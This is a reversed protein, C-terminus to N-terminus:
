VYYPTSSDKGENYTTNPKTNLDSNSGVNYYDDPSTGLNENEISVTDLPTEALQASSIASSVNQINQNVTTLNQELKTPDTYGVSDLYSYLTDVTDQDGEVQAAAIQPIIEDRIATNSAIQDSISNAILEQEQKLTSLSASDSPLSNLPIPKSVVNNYFNKVSDGVFSVGEGIAKGVNGALKGLTGGLESLGTGGAGARQANNGGQTNKPSAKTPYEGPLSSLSIGAPSSGGLVSPLKGTRAVDNLIGLGESLISAKSINKANNILNTAGRATKLLGLPSTDGAGGLVEGLGPIVGGPGFLSNNGSGFVSLPGPVTDYHIQAFGGPEGIKIQGTAYIVTEYVVSMRNELLKSQTQDLKDHSWDSILPNILRYATFEKRNLQYIDISRFFPGTQDSNLGYETTDGIIAKSAPSPKYKTDGFNPPSTLGSINRGDRYYYNYYAKWLSNTTNYHDDHFTVQVPQYELKTQIQAKRNYQNVTDTTIKFKPLDITKVLLGIESGNKTLFDQVVQNNNSAIDFVVYYMFGQKPALRYFDDVYLRSAHAYDKMQTPTDFVQGLFNTFANAM